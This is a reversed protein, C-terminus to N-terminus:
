NVDLPDTTFSTIIEELTERNPMMLPMTKLDLHRVACVVCVFRVYKASQEAHKRAAPSTWVLQKCYDCPEKKSNVAAAPTGGALACILVAGDDDDAM